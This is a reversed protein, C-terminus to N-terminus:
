DCAVTRSHHVMRKLEVTGRDFKRDTASYAVMDQMLDVHALFMRRCCMRTAMKVAPREVGTQLLDAYEASRHAIVANCTYCRVPFM